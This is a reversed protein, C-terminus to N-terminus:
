EALRTLVLYTAVAVGAAIAALIGILGFVRGAAAVRRGGVRGLTRESRQRAKRALVVALAGGLFAVPVAAAAYVLDFLGHLEAAYVAAPLAVAAVLGLLLSARARGNPEPSSSRTPAAL